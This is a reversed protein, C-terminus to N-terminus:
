RRMRSATSLVVDRARARAMLLPTSASIQDCPVERLSSAKPVSQSMAAASGFRASPAQAPQALLTHVVLQLFARWSRSPTVADFASLLARSRPPCVGAGDDKGSAARRGYTDAVGALPRTPLPCTSNRLTVRISLTESSLRRTVEM